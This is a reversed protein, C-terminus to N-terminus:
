SHTHAVHRTAGEPGMGGAHETAEVHADVRELLGGGEVRESRVHGSLMDSTGADFANVEVYTASDMRATSNYSNSNSNEQKEDQEEDDERCNNETQRGRRM